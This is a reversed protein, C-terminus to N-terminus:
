KMRAGNVHLSAFVGGVSHASIPQMKGTKGWRQYQKRASIANEFASGDYISLALLTLMRLPRGALERTRRHEHQRDVFITM